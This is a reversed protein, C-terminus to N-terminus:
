WRPRGARQLTPVLDVSGLLPCWPWRRGGRGDVSVSGVMPRSTESALRSMEVRIWLSIWSALDSSLTLTLFPPVPMPRNAAAPKKATSAIIM